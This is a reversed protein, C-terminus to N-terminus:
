GYPLTKARGSNEPLQRLQLPLSFDKMLMENELIFQYVLESKSRGCHLLMEREDRFMHLKMRLGTINCNEENEEFTGDKTVWVEMSFVSRLLV